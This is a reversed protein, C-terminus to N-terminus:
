FNFRLSGGFTRTAPNTGVTSVQQTWRSGSAIQEPDFHKQTRYLFFPNRTYLSVTLNNFGFRNILDSPLSYSVTIERMKIYDNPSIYNRYQAYPNWQPGGWGNTRLYMESSSAIIDNPQGNDRRVGDLIVGDHYVTEGNPGTNGGDWLIRVGDAMYYSIGGSETDRYDLADVLLGRSIMWNVATPMIYSGFRYDLVVDLTINRYSFSNMFGGVWSDMANGIYEWETPSVRYLGREDVLPQGNENTEIPPAYWSGMPKGVESRLEAASGDYNGHLLYEADEALRVVTNKNTAANFVVNWFIDNTRVPILRLSMELGQNRLVGINTLVNSAGSSRAVTLPLIQDRTEGDYYTIDFGIRGGIYGTEFGFEYEHREEPKINDNGFSAPLNTFLVPQGGAMQTGLTGQNFAINARYQDPYNGVVGYSARFKGYEFWDPVDIVDSFIFSANVSPYYFVNNDPHMTSTRDRRLTAEAFLWGRYDLNLIGFFADTLFFSRASGSNPTNVSAAMDFLNETSLGGNTSRSTTYVEESRANYGANLGLVLDPTLSRRYSLLVDGYLLKYQWNNMSFSGSNGFALPVTNPNRGETYRTTFDTSVRGRLTLGDIIQWTNTLSGLIRDSTETLENANMQWLYNFIDPRFANTPINEEPTLSQGDGVVHRYGLSTKYRPLYWEANDFRTMMGGFNNWLRDVQYPRNFVEQNNYTLVLDVTYNSRVNYTSNLNIINRTHSSNMSVPTNDQRTYAIRASGDENGMSVAVQNYFSTAPEFLAAYHGQQAEWPRVIGDWAMVQTTGDFAPGFNVNTAIHGRVQQGDIDHWIWGDADQGVDGIFHPFGPGFKNQYQPLYAVYDRSYNSVFEVNFGRVGRGSKTTILVVGNVAESGYLAAASAGSLVTLEEIDEPNLDILGNGRIRQDGWFNANNVEEDRIPVGDVVILPQSRGTISNFGRININIASTSGGPTSAIRVGPAKGYLAAAFNPAGSKTLEAASVTTAAYGLAKRDRSIGMATVVVEQIGIVDTELTVNIITRGEVPVETTTYGIFSFVLVADSAVRLSYNGDVSTSTGNLTGKELVTVGPLGQGDADVVTGTVTVQAIANIAFAFCLTFILLSKRM